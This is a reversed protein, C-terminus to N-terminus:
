GRASLLDRVHAPTPVRGALVVEGDVVLAPTAMIGRRAIEAVDTVEEVQADLGLERVAERANRSLTHCRDCGAGLVQIRM